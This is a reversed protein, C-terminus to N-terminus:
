RRDLGLAALFRQVELNNGAAHPIDANRVKSRLLGRDLELVRRRGDAFGKLIGLAEELTPDFVFISGQSVIGLSLTDLSREIRRRVDEPNGDGDAVIIVSESDGAANAANALAALNFTGGAPLVELQYTSPGLEDALAHVLLADFHGEVIVMRTPRVRVERDAVQVLRGSVPDRLPLFPTGSEAAARLKQDLAANISIQGAAVARLDDGDFLITNIVKGAVLADVADVSFGSMSIFVGITGVLKGEVKGRFQYISSAPLPDQVWKAELLMVRGRHFFSGDIEEGIPRFSTRPALEAEALMGYIVREFDRGRRRREEAAASAQLHEARQFLQRWRDAAHKGDRGGPVFWLKAYFAV